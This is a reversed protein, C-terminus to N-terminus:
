YGDSARSANEFRVFDGDFNLNVLGTEGDRQKAIILQTVDPLRHLLGVTDADREIQGSDALDALRPQRGKDKTNERNLQALTVMAVNCEVAVAKLRSSVDGVEYTRKEHREAPKIKQLYDVVVLRIGNQVVKRRIISCLERIGIGSVADVINIPHKKCLAKFSAFKGFLDETYNGRRIVRLPISMHMSLLRRMVSQVSMEGSIFLSPVGLFANHKLISLGLATKGQSPRAGVVFQEGFQLGETMANLDVLGTDLGSLRGELEMRRELDSIMSEGAASGDLIELINKDGQFRLAAEVEGVLFNVDPEDHAKRSIESCSIILRRRLAKESVIETYYSLNASGTVCDQLQNLYAIGGIQDLENREKLRQQVTILDVPIQEDLMRLLEAYLMQHRLDYFVHVDSKLLEVAEGLCTPAHLVCGLVGQEMECSNPPLRDKPIPQSSPKRQGSRKLDPPEPASSTGAALEKMLLLEEDSIYPANAAM